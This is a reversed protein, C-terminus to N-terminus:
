SCESGIIEPDDLLPEPCNTWFASDKKSIADLISQKFYHLSLDNFIEKQSYTPFTIESVYPTVQPLWFFILVFLYSFSSVREVYDYLLQEARRAILRIFLLYTYNVCVM